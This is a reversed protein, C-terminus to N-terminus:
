SLGNSLRSFFPLHCLPLPPPSPSRSGLIFSPPPSALLAHILGELTGKGQDMEMGGMAESHRRSLTWLHSM